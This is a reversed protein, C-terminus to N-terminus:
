RVLSKNMMSTAAMEFYEWMQRRREEPLNAEDVAVRM